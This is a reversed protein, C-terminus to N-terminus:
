SLRAIANYAMDIVKVKSFKEKLERLPTSHKTKSLKTNDEDKILKHHCYKPVDLELLAQLLRHIHTALMLDEGRTVLNVGQLADDITVALHYSTAIDKRALVVDGLVNPTAIFKGCNIDNWLLVGKEAIIKEMALSTNLRLAYPIGQKKKYEIEKKTLKKCTQPYVAEESDNENNSRAIDKRSCFCPYLLGMAELKKLAKQYDKLHESQIRVPEEWSLGLWKLDEYIATIYEKKCRTQDIDEIRLIFRGGSQKAKEYAFLASYAHGLHLYGTPSPAFRTIFKTM